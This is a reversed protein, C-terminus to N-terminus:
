SGFQRDEKGDHTFLHLSGNGNKAVGDLSPADGFDQKAILECTTTAGALEHVYAWRASWNDLETGLQVSPLIPKSSEPRPDSSRFVRLDVIQYKKFRDALELEGFTVPYLRIWQAGTGLRIGAVCVTEGYNSSPQPYAKVTVLVRVQEERVMAFVIRVTM